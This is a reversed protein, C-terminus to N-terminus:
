WLYKPENVACADFFISRNLWCFERYAINNNNNKKLHTWFNCGTVLVVVEAEAIGEHHHLIYISLM